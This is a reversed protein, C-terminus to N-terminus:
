GEILYTNKQAKNVRVMKTETDLLCTGDRYQISRTQSKITGEKLSLNLDAVQTGICEYITKFM